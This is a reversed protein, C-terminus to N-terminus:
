KLLRRLRKLWRKPRVINELQREPLFGFLARLLLEVQRTLRGRDLRPKTLRGSVLQHTADLLTFRVAAQGGALRINEDTEPLTYHAKGNPLHSYDHSQHLVTVSPTADVVPWKSRRAEYIMWNDWGARGIAFAPVDPFCARPFVFYDSGAPRHLQGASRAVDRLPGQWGNRVDLSATIQVDWRRSLLVFRPELRLMTRAAEFFDDLLIIDTNVIALLPSESNSRALEFMSSLLPTGNPNRQVQALHRAGLEGAAAELGPEDGILLVEVDPLRRWSRVANRQILAIHPDAFPKPASFLTIFPM